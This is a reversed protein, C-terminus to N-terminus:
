LCDPSKIMLNKRFSLFLWNSKIREPIPPILSGMLSFGLQKQSL